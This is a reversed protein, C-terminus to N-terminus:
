KTYYRDILDTKLLISDSSKVAIVYEIELLRRTTRCIVAELGRLYELRSGRKFYLMEWGSKKELSGIM